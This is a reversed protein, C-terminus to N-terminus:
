KGEEKKGERQGEKERKGKGTRQRRGITHVASVLPPPIQNLAAELSRAFVPVKYLLFQRRHKAPSATLDCRAPLDAPAHALISGIEM